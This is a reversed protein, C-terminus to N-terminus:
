DYAHPVTIVPVRAHHIVHNSVSGLLFEEVQGKGQRGLIIGNVDLARAEECITEGADGYAIDSSVDFGASELRDLAEEVVLSAEETIRSRISTADSDSEDDLKGIPVAEVVCLVHITDTAPDLLEEAFSEAHRSASSGDTPLLYTM